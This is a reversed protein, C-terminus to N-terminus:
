PTLLGQHSAEWVNTVNYGGETQGVDFYLYFTGNHYLLKSLYFGLWGSVSATSLVPNAASKKWAVGDSSTAYGFAWYPNAAVAPPAAAVVIFLRRRLGEM